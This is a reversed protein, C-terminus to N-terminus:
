FILEEEGEESDFFSDILVNKLLDTETKDAQAQAEASIAENSKNATQKPEDGGASNDSAAVAESKKSQADDKAVESAESTTEAKATDEGPVAAVTEAKASDEGIETAVAEADSQPNTDQAQAQANAADASTEEQDKPAVTSDADKAPASTQTSNIVATNTKTSKQDSVSSTQAPSTSLNETPDGSLSSAAQTSDPTDKASSDKTKVSSDQDKDSSKSDTAEFARDTSTDTKKDPAKDSSESGDSSVKASSTNGEDHTDSKTANSDQTAKPEQASDTKPARNDGPKEDKSKDKAAQDILQASKDDEAASDNSSNSSEDSNDQRSSAENSKDEQPKLEEKKDTSSSKDSLSSSDAASSVKPDHSTEQLKDKDDDSKQPEEIKVKGNLVAAADTQEKAKANEDYQPLYLGPRQEGRRLPIIAFRPEDLDGLITVKTSSDKAPSIFFSNGSIKNREYDANVSLRMNATSLAMSTTNQAVGQNFTTTSKLASIGAVAGQVGTLLETYSLEYNKDKGGNILDLGFDSILMADSNVNLKGKAENILSEFTKAQAKSELSLNVDMRGTLMHSVLNSNLDASEFDPANLKLHSKDFAKLAILAEAAASSEKFKANPVEVLLKDADLLWKSHMSSILLDSYLFNKFELEMAATNASKAVADATAVKNDVATKDADASDQSDKKAETNAFVNDKLVSVSSLLRYFEDQDKQQAQGKISLNDATGTISQISMPLSNLYSLFELSEFGAHKLNFTYENLGASLFKLRPTNIALKAKKMLLKELNLEKNKHDLEGQALYRGEYVNGQLKFTFADKSFTASVENSEMTTQLNPMSIEDASGNFTGQIGNSTIKLDEINGNIGQVIYTSLNVDDAKPTHSQKAGQKGGKDAANQADEAAKAAALTNTNKSSHPKSKRASPADDSLIVDTLVTSQSTLTINEPSTLGSYIIVNALSLEDLKIDTIVQPTGNAGDAKNEQNANASNANALSQNYMGKGSIIGGYMQVSFNNLRMGDPAQEFDVVFSKAQEKFLSLKESALSGSRFTLGEKDSFSVQNLRITADKTKLFRTNIPTHHFRVANARISKYGAKSSSLAALDEKSLKLDNIYIDNIKLEDDSLASSIDYELYLEGVTSSGFKVNNLKIVDPYVPSFEADEITVDLGTQKSLYSGLPGKIATGNFFIAVLTFGVVTFAGAAAGARIMCSLVKSQSREARRKHYLGVM